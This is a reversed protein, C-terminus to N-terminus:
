IVLNGLHHRNFYQMLVISIVYFVVLKNYKNLYSSSAVKNLRSLEILLKFVCENYTFNGRFNNNEKIFLLSHGREKM